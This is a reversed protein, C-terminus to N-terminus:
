RGAGAQATSAAALRSGLFLGAAFAAYVWVLSHRTLRQEFGPTFRRPVVQYDVVAALAAVALADRLEAAPSESRRRAAIWEYFFAWFISSLHHIVMGVATYRLSAGDRGLARRSLWHAPANLPAAGAGLDVSGRWALVLSSLASAMGGSFAGDNLAKRWRTM